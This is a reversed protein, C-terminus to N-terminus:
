SQDLIADPCEDEVCCGHAEFVAAADPRVDLIERVSTERTIKM